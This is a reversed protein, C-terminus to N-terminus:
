GRVPVSDHGTAGSDVSDHGTVGSDVSEVGTNSLGVLTCEGRRVVVCNHGIAWSDVDGNVVRM